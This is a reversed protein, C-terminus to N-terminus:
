AGLAGLLATAQAAQWTQFHEGKPLTETVRVVPVEAALALKQLRDTETDTVQTNLLLAKITGKTVSQEFRANDGPTPDTGNELALSFDKPTGLRLGAAEVLYGPVPETYGVAAGAHLARITAIIRNVKAMGTTFRALGAAFDARHAPQERVLAAEIAGAARLAYSPRYWLHPNNGSKAGVVTSITIVTRSPKKDVGLLRDMFPDYDAGNVIVLDARSTSAADSVSSEYEHPDQNPDALISTVDVHTGGVQAAIDGWLSEAALVQVRGQHTAAASAPLGNGAASSAASCASLTAAVLVALATGRFSRM